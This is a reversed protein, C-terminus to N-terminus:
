LRIPVINEIGFGDLSGQAEFCIFMAAHDIM